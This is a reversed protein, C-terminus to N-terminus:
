YNPPPPPESYAKPNRSLLRLVAYTLAGYVAVNCFIVTAALAVGTLSPVHHSSLSNALHYHLTVPWSVPQWLLYTVRRNEIGASLSGFAIFYLLPISVGGALSLLARKM